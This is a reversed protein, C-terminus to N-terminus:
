EDVALVVIGSKHLKKELVSDQALDRAFGSGSLVVIAGIRDRTKLVRKIMTNLVGFDAETDIARPEVYEELIDYGRADALGYISAIQKTTATFPAYAVAVRTFPDVKRVYPHNVTM